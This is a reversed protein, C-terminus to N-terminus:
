SERKAGNIIINEHDPGVGLTFRTWKGDDYIIYADQEDDVITRVKKGKCECSKIFDSDHLLIVNSM